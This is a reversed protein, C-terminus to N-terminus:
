ARPAHTYCGAAHHRFDSCIRRGERPLTERLSVLELRADSSPRRAFRITRPVHLLRALDNHFHKVIVDRVVDRPLPPELQLHRRQRRERMRVHRLNERKSHMRASPEHHALPELALRQRIPERSTRQREIRRHRNRPLQERRQRRRMRRLENVAMHM